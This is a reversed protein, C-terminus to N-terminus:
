LCTVDTVYPRCFMTRSVNSPILAAIIIADEVKLGKRSFDLASKSKIDQIPLPFTHVIVTSIAANNKISDALVIAGLPIKFAWKGGAAPKFIRSGDAKSKGEKWGPPCETPWFETPAVLEGIDNKSFDLHTLAENKKIADAL